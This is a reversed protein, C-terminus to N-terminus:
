VIEKNYCAIVFIESGAYQDLLTEYSPLRKVDLWNDNAIALNKKADLKLNEPKGYLLSIM